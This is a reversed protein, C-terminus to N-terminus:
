MQGQKEPRKNKRPPLALVTAAYGLDPNNGPMAAWFFCAAQVVLVFTIAHWCYYNTYRAKSSLNTEPDLLPSAVRKTAVFTHLAFTVVTMVGAGFLWINVNELM